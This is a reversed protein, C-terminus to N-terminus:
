PPVKAGDQVTPSIGARPPAWRRRRQPLPIFRTDCVGSLATALGTEAIGPERPEHERVIGAVGEDQEQTLKRQAEAGGHRLKPVFSEEGYKRRESIWRQVTGPHVNLLAAIKEHTM